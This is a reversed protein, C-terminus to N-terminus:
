ETVIYLNHDKFLKGIKQRIRDTELVSTTQLTALGDDRYLGTNMKVGIISSLHHLMYLGLLKCVQAGDFSSMAVDFQLISKKSWASSNSFLVSHRCRMIINATHEDVEVYNQAFELLKTLLDETISPYFDVIEFKLFKYKSKLSIKPVMLHSNLFKAM